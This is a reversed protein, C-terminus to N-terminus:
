DKICRVSFGCEKAYNYKVVISEINVTSIGWSGDSFGESSSWWYGYTGLDNYPGYWGRQGGPLATFSSKNSAQNPSTWHSTGSEKLKGGAVNEGGLYSILKTWEVDTPVHWGEPCINRSDSVAYWNYLKGYTTNNGDLNNYIAYAGSTANQWDTNSLGTTIQDGNRYRTTKLNQMMWTQTGITVADYVNGDIDTVAGHVINIDLEDGEKGCSTLFSLGALGFIFLLPYYWLIRKM